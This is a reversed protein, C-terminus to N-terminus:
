PSAAPVGSGTSFPIAVRLVMLYTACSSIIINLYIRSIKVGFDDTAYALYSVLIPTFAITWLTRKQMGRKQTANLSIVHIDLICVSVVRYSPANLFASIKDM